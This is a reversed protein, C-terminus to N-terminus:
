KMVTVRGLPITVSKASFQLARPTRLMGRGCTLTVLVSSARSRVVGRSRRERRCSPHGVAPDTARDLDAARVTGPATSQLHAGRSPNTVAVRNPTLWQVVRVARHSWDTTTGSVFPVGRSSRPTTNPKAPNEPRIGTSIAGLNTPM